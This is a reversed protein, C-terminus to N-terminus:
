FRFVIAFHLATGFDIHIADARCNTAFMMSVNFIAPQVYFMTALMIFFQFFTQWFTAQTNTLTCSYLSERIIIFEDKIVSCIFAVVLFLM